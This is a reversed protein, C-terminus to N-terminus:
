VNVGLKKFYAKTDKIERVRGNKIDDMSKEIGSMIKKKPNPEKIEKISVGHLSKLVKKISSLLTADEVQILIQTM